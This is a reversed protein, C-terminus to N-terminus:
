ATKESSKQNTERAVAAREVADSAEKKIAEVLPGFLYTVADDSIATPTQPKPPRLRHVATMAILTSSLAAAISPILILYWELTKVEGESVDKPDKNFLMATYSHLPSQFIADRYEKDAKNVEEDISRPNFKELDVQAQKNLTESDTLKAKTADIETRLPKLGPNEKCVQKTPGPAGNADPTSITSCSLNQQANLQSVLSKYRDSLVNFEKARQEVKDQADKKQALFETKHGQLSDLQERKEHVAELRPNFTFNGIQYLSASTVVVACAVGLLAAFQINWSKQIRVAIALPVRALEVMALAIPFLLTQVVLFRTVNPLQSAYVFQSTLILGIIVFEVAFALVVQKVNISYGRAIDRELRSRNREAAAARAAKRRRSLFSDPTPDSEFSTQDSSEVVIQEPGFFNVRLGVFLYALPAHCGYV